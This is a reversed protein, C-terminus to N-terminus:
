RGGAASLNQGTIYSADDSALFAVAAAVESAQGLRHMPILKLPSYDGDRIERTFLAGVRETLILGPCVSNVTVGYEALELAVERTFGYVGAKAASYASAGGYRAQWPTGDKSGSSFNIIRGYRQEMMPKSAARTCLFMSRLNFSIVRDWVEEPLEWIRGHSAGGVVNVLIDVKGFRELGAAILADAAVSQTTDGASTVCSTAASNLESATAALAAADIDGLVLDAGESALRRAVARGLGNAGGAVVAVRGTLRAM